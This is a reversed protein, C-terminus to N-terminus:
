VGALWIRVKNQQYNGYCLTAMVLQWLVVNGYCTAMVFSNVCRAVRSGFGVANGDDDDRALVFIAEISSVAAAARFFLDTEQRRGSLPKTEIRAAAAPLFFHMKKSPELSAALRRVSGVAALL